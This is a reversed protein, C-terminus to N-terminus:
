EDRGDLNPFRPMTNSFFTRLFSRLPKHWSAHAVIAVMSFRSSNSKIFTGVPSFLEFRLRQLGDHFKNSCWQLGMQVLVLHPYSYSCLILRAEELQTRGSPCPATSFINLKPNSFFESNQPHFKGFPNQPDLDILGSRAQTLNDAKRCYHAFDFTQPATPPHSIWPGFRAQGLKM